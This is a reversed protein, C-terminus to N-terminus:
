GGSVDGEISNVKIMYLHTFYINFKQFDLANYVNVRFM